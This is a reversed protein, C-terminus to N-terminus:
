LFIKKLLFILLKFIRFIEFKPLLSNLLSYKIEIAFFIVFPNLVYTLVIGLVYPFLAGRVLYIVFCVEGAIFVYLSVKAVKELSANFNNPKQM